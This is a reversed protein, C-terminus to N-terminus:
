IKRERLAADIDSILNKDTVGFEHWRCKALLGRLRDNDARWNEIITRYGECEARAADYDALQAQLRRILRRQRNLGKQQQRLARWSEFCMAQYRYADNIARTLPDSNDTRHKNRKGTGNCFICDSM